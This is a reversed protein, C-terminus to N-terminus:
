ASRDLTRSHGDDDVYPRAPRVRTRIEHEARFHEIMDLRNLQRCLVAVQELDLGKGAPSRPVKHPKLGWAKVLDRITHYEVGLEDALEGFLWLRMTDM